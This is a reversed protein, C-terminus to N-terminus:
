VNTDCIELIALAFTRYAKLLERGKDTIFYVYRTRIDKSTDESRTILKMSLLKNLIDVTPTWALNAENMIHTPKSTGRYVALLVELRIELTSRKTGFLAAIRDKKM